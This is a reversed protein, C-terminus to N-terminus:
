QDTRQRGAVQKRVKALFEALRRGPAERFEEDTTEATLIRDLRFTRYDDRLECWATLTWKAGRFYLGFPHVLRGIAQRVGELMAAVAQDVSFGPAFLRTGQVSERREPPLALAIKAM